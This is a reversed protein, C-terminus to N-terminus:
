RKIPKSQAELARLTESALVALSASFGSDLISNKSTQPENAVM